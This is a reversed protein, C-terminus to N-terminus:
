GETRLQRRLYSLPVRASGDLSASVTSSVSPKFAHAYVVETYWEMKIDDCVTGAAMVGKDDPFWFGSAQLEHFFQSGDQYSATYGNVDVIPDAFGSQLLADGLDHMDMLYPLHDSQFLHRWAALTDPGLANVMLLGDPALVRKCENLFVRFDMQWPLMFNAFVFDVSENKLPLRAADACLYHSQEKGKAYSLMSESADLSLLLADPYRLKLQTTAGGTGCGADLMVKPQLTM